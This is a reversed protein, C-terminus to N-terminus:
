QLLAAFVPQLREYWVGYGDSSPHFSDAAYHRTPDAAFPDVARERYLDVYHIHEGVAVRMFVERVQQTRMRLLWRTELPFIEATGVNGCSAIVVEDAIGRAADLLPRLGDEIKKLSTFRVIDNGGIQIYVLDYHQDRLADLQGPVDAVKAGSVARNTIDVNEFDAGLLGALSTEPATAGVGVGTSDGVVLVHTQANAPHQEYAHASQALGVGVAVKKQFGRYQVVGIGLLVCV